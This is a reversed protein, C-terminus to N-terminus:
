ITFPKTAFSFIGEGRTGYYIDRGITLSAIATAAATLLVAVIFRQIDVRSPKMM